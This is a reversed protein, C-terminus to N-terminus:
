MLHETWTRPTKDNQIELDLHYRFPRPGREQVHAVLKELGDRLEVKPAYGLINRAKTASCTARHVECPRPPMFIPNANLGTANLVMRALELVTVEGSDPGVNIVEGHAEESTGMAILPEVVDDVYSFCRVQSGDGYVIPPNGQLARNVMIAAVNRYPDDYRQRPGYINHPVAISYEFGHTNAMMRLLQDASYKALGYPDVPRCGQFERFPAIADGYRSMSSCSVVRRVGCAVAASFVAAAGAYINRSIYGPSFVSVGEYPAAACHYVLECGRMNAVLRTYGRGDAVDLNLDVGTIPHVIIRHVRDTDPDTQYWADLIPQPLNQLEGGSMDDCGCVDHGQAILTHALSSGLFGAIGTIFIKM